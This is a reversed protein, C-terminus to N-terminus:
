TQEAAHRPMACSRHVVRATAATSATAAAPQPEEPEEELAGFLVVDGAGAVGVEGAEEDVAAGPANDASAFEAAVPSMGSVCTNRTNELLVAPKEIFYGSPHVWFPEPPLTVNESM